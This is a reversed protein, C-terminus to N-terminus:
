VRRNKPVSVYGNQTKNKEPLELTYISDIGKSKIFDTFVKSLQADVFQADVIFKM